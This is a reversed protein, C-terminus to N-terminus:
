LNLSIGNAKRRLLDLVIKKKGLVYMVMSDVHDIHSAILWWKNM